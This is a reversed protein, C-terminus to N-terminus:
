RDWDAPLRLEVTTTAGTRVEATGLPIWLADLAAWGGQMLVRSRAEISQLHKPLTRLHITGVSVEFTTNGTTDTRPLTLTQRAEAATDFITVEPVATGTASRLRVQLTGTALTFDQETAARSSVVATEAALLNASALGVTARYSGPRLHVLFRGEPDTSALGTEQRTRGNVAACTGLLSVRAGAVPQGNKMVRGALTGPTMLAIPIEVDFRTTLGDIMTVEGLLEYGRAHQLSVTYTGPLLGRLEFSGDAAMPVVPPRPAKLDQNPRQLHLQLPTRQQAAADGALSRLFEIADLPGLKGVLHAGLSVAIRLPEPGALSVGHLQTPQHGPGPLRVGLDRTGPGRLEARGSADTTTTQLLLAQIFQPRLIRPGAVVPTSPLFEGDVPDCLVVTVDAMPQGNGDVVELTRTAIPEALVDLRTHQVALDLALLRPPHPASAGFEVLVAMPGLQVGKLSAIGDPFPGARHKSTPYSTLALNRGTSLTITFDEVPRGDQDRVLLELSNGDLM